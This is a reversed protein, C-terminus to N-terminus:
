PNRKAYSSNSESYPRRSNYKSLNCDEGLFPKFVDPLPNVSTMSNTQNGFSAITNHVDFHLDDGKKCTWFVPLGLGHAFGAEYYVGGRHGTADAVVFRSRRIQLIIEDDIKEAHERKDVRHPAYGALGIAPAIAGDYITNMSPDFWMAVFGQQSDLNPSRLQELREWGTATIEVKYTQGVAEPPYHKIFNRQILLGCVASLEAEDMAWCEAQLALDDFQMPIHRLYGDGRSTQQELYLLLRDAKDLMSIDRAEFFFAEDQEALRFNKGQQHILNSMISRQRASLIKGSPTYGTSIFNATSEGIFFVGCRPCVVRYCLWSHQRMEILEHEAPNKCIFCTQSPM